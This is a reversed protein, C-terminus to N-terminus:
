LQNYREPRLAASSPLQATRSQRASRQSALWSTPSLQILPFHSKDCHQASVPPPIPLLLCARAEADAARGQAACAPAVPCLSDLVPSLMEGEYQELQTNPLASAEWPCVRTLPMEREPVPCRLAFRCRPQASVFCWVRTLAAACFGLDV